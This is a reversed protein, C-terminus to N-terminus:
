VFGFKVGHLGSRSRSDILWFHTGFGRVDAKHPKITAVEFDTSSDAALALLAALGLSAAFVIWRVNCENNGVDLPEQPVVPLPYDLASNVQPKPSALQGFLGCGKTLLLDERRRLRRFSLKNM